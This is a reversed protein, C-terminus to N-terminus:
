EQEEGSYGGRHSPTLPPVSRPLMAPPPPVLGLQRCGLDECEFAEECEHLDVPCFM